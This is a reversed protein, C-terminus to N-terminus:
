EEIACDPGESCEYYISVEKLVRGPRNSSVSAHIELSIGHQLLRFFNVNDQRNVRREKDRIRPYFSISRLDYLYKSVNSPPVPLSNQDIILHGGIWNMRFVMDDWVTLPREYDVRAEIYLYARSLEGRVRYRKTIGDFDITAPKDNICGTPFCEKTLSISHIKPDPKKGKIADYDPYQSPSEEPPPPTVIPSVPPQEAQKLKHGIYTGTVIAVVSYTVLVIYGLLVNIKLPREWKSKKM